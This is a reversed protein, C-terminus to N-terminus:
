DKKFEREKIKMNFERMDGIVGQAMVMCRATLQEQALVDGARAKLELEDMQMVVYPNTLIHKM